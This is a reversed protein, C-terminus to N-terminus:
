RQIAICIDKTETYFDYSWDGGERGVGSAKVGGFPVRLDRLMWGNVWVIGTELRKAMRHARSLNETWLSAALGYQPENALQIVEEENDFPTVTVVPGFIEEQVACSHHPVNILITPEYFHGDCFPAALQPKKGGALLRGGDAIARKVYHDVKELHAKSVLAGLKTKPGLPDGVHLQEKVRQSFAELFKPYISSEIYIRSGCLCIEGQNLFSSRLSTSLANEFNADAFIINPNKGGLELSLKKFLPAATRAIQQGTQTGGTFSVARIDHHEVIAQGVAPGRGFLMNVVGHPVGAASLVECLLYATLPTLESPKCVVTNGFALAPAIKWTLLYLPLNWPTILGIVGVPSREVYHFVQESSKFVKDELHQLRSAFFRFNSVSRPIDLERALTLPKGQDQSEARAFEDLREELLTAVRQLIDSRKQAGLSSWEPQARKAASVAKEVDHQDSDPCTGYFTATAPNEIQLVKGNESPVFRGDIFNKLVLM